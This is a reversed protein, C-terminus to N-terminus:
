RPLLDLWYAPAVAVSTDRGGPLVVELTTQSGDSPYPTYDVTEGDRARFHYTTIGASGESDLYGTMSQVPNLRMVARSSFKCLRYAPGRHAGAALDIRYIATGDLARLCAVPTWAGRLSPALSGIELRTLSDLMLRERRSVYDISYIAQDAWLYQGDRLSWGRWGFEHWGQPPTTTLVMRLSDDVLVPYYTLMARADAIDHLPYPRLVPYDLLRSFAAPDSRDVASVLQKVVGPLSDSHQIAEVASAAPDRGTHKSGTCAVAGTLAVLLTLAGALPHLIRSMQM